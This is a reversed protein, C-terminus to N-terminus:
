RNKKKSCVQMRRFNNTSLIKKDVSVISDLSMVYLCTCCKNGKPM